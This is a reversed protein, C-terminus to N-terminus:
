PKRPFTLGGLTLRIRLRPQFAYGISLLNINRRRASLNLRTHTEELQLGGHSTLTGALALGIQQQLAPLLFRSFRVLVFLM